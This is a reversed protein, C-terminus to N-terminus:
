LFTTSDWPEWGSTINQQLKTATCYLLEILSGDADYVFAIEYINPGIMQQQPPYLAMRLTKNFKQMSTFNLQEIYTTLSPTSPQLDLSAETTTPTTSSAPLTQNGNNSQLQEQYHIQPTVDIAIHNYGLIDPRSILLDPARDNRLMYSPVEILEIRSHKEYCHPLTLWVARAPGARFKYETCYGFLSYFSMAMTINRTKIATHHIHQLIASQGNDSQHHENKFESLAMSHRRRYRFRHNHRISFCSQQQQRRIIFLGFSSKLFLLGMWLQLLLYNRQTRRQRRLTCCNSAIPVILNIRSSEM